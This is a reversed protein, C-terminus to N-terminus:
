IVMMWHYQQLQLFYVLCLQLFILLRKYEIKTINELLVNIYPHILYLALYTKAFWWIPYGLIHKFLIKISFTEIGFCIFIMYIIISYFLIQMILKLVKNVQIKKSSILFYGSIMVFINVGIKGGSFLIQLWIKNGISIHNFDFNGYCVFHHAIIMLMAIIRLLEISSLRKKLNKNNSKSLDTM